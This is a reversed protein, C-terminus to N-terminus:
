PQHPLPTAMRALPRPALTMTVSTSGMRAISATMSPKETMGMRSAAFSPSKKTVTVPQAPTIVSGSMSSIFSPATRVFAPWKSTSISM